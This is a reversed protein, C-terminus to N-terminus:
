DDPHPRRPLAPRAREGDPWRSRHGHPHHARVGQPEGSRGALQVGAVDRRPSAFRGRAPPPVQQRRHGSGRVLLPLGGADATRGVALDPHAVALHGGTRSRRQRDPGPPRVARSAPLQAADGRRGRLLARRDDRETRRAHRPPGATRQCPCRPLLRGDAQGVRRPRAPGARHRRADAGAGAHHGEVHPLEGGVRPHARHSRGAGGASLRGLPRPDVRSAARSRNERSWPSVLGASFCLALRGSRHSRVRRGTRQWRGSVDPGSVLSSANSPRRRLTM